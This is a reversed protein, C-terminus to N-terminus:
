GSWVRMNLLIFRGLDKIKNQNAELIFLIELSRIKAEYRKALMIKYVRDFHEILYFKAWSFASTCNKFGM